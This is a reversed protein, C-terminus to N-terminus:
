RREFVLVEDISGSTWITNEVPRGGPSGVSIRVAGLSGNGELKGSVGLEIGEAPFKMAATAKVTGYVRGEWIVDGLHTLKLAIPGGIVTIELNVTERETEPNGPAVPSPVIEPTRSGTLRILPVLALGMALVMTLLRLIPSGRM